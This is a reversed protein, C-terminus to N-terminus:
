GDMLMVGLVYLDGAERSIRAGEAAAARVTEVDGDFMGNMARAQLVATTAAVDDVRAVAARAEDLLLAAVAPDGDMRAAISAMAAAQVLMSDDGLEEAAATARTLWRRAAPPDAHLVALFGRLFTAWAGSVTNGAGPALVEDLWRVGETTARTIWYWGVAAVLDTARTTDGVNLCRRM